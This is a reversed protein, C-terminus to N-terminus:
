SIYSLFFFFFTRAGVRFHQLSCVHVHDEEVKMFCPLTKYFIPREM